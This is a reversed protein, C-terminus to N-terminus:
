IVHYDRRWFAVSRLYRIESYWFGILDLFYFYDNAYDPSIQKIFTELM